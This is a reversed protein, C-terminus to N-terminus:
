PFNIMINSNFSMFGRSDIEVNVSQFHQREFGGLDQESVVTQCDMVDTEIDEGLSLYPDITASSDFLDEEAVVPVVLLVVVLAIFLISTFVRCVAQIVTITGMM